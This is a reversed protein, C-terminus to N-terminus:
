KYVNIEEELEEIRKKIKKLLDQQQGFEVQHQVDMNEVRKLEKRLVDLDTITEM